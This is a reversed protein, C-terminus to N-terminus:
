SSAEGLQGSCTEKGARCSEREKALPAAQGAHLQAGCASNSCGQGKALNQSRQLWSEQLFRQSRSRSRGAGLVYGVVATM